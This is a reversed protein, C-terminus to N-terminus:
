RQLRVNESQVYINNEFFVVISDVILQILFFLIGLLGIYIIYFVVVYILIMFFLRIYKCVYLESYISQFGCLLEINDSNINYVDEYLVM